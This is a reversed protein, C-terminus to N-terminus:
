TGAIFRIGHPWLLAANCYVHSEVKINGTNLYFDSTEDWNRIEEAADEALVWPTLGAAIAARSVLYYNATVATGALEGARIASM